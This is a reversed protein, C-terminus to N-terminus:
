LFPLIKLLTGLVDAGAGITSSLGGEQQSILPEFPRIGLASLKNGMGQQLYQMYQPAISSSVDTAANSLAQNLASSSGAGMAEYREQIGPVLREKFIKESPEVISKTFAEMDQPQNLIQSLVNQQEPSLLGINGMYNTKGGWWDGTESGPQLYGQPSQSLSQSGKASSGM